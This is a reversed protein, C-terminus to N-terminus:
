DEDPVTGDYGAPVGLEGSLEPPPWLKKAGPRLYKDPVHEYFLPAGFAASLAEDSVGAAPMATAGEPLVSDHTLGPQPSRQAELIRIHDQLRTNEVVFETMMDLTVQAAEASGFMKHDTVLRKTFATYAKGM